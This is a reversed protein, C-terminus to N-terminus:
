PGIRRLPALRPQAAILEGPAFARPATCSSSIVLQHRRGMSAFIVHGVMTM